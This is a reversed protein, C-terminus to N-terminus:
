GTKKTRQMLTQDREKTNPSQKIKSKIKRVNELRQKNQGLYEITLHLLNTKTRSRRETGSMYQTLTIIATGTEKQPRLPKVNLNHTQELKKM